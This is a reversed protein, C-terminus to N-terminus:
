PQKRVPVTEERPSTPFVLGSPQNKLETILPIMEALFTSITQLTRQLDQSTQSDNAFSQATEELAKLTGSLQALLAATREDGILSEGSKALGQISALTTAGEDLLLELKEVVSELPLHNIKAILAEISDTFKELSDVGNPIVALDKFYTLEAQPPSDEYRLDVLQSGLL